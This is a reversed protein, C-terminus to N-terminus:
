KPKGVVSKARLTTKKLSKLEIEISDREAYIVKVRSDTNIAPAKVVESTLNVASDTTRKQDGAPM